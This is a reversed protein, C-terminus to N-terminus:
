GYQITQYTINSVVVYIGSLALIGEGSFIVQFPQVATGTNYSTIWKGTSYICATSTAITGSNIDTITFTNANSVTVVYNGAAASVGSAASFTIGITQGTVLGHGTSTVTVTTGSRGYTGTTVPATTTDFVDISGATGNGQYVLNKLRVRGPVMIGSGSLHSGKVDYQITM